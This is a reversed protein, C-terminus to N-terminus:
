NGQNKRALEQIRKSSLQELFQIIKVEDEAGQPRHGNVATFAAIGFMFVMGKYYQIASLWDSVSAYGHATALKVKEDYSQAQTNKNDRIIYADIFPMAAALLEPYEEEVRVITLMPQNM